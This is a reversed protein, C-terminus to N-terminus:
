KSDYNITSLSDMRVTDLSDARHLLPPHSWRMKKGLRDFDWRYLVGVGQTTLASRLYYNQDNFHNYAKLRLNGNRSLLYEIDFDGVFQTSSTNRDRYGFNGNILLRNNLLRSSLALDFEMDTFDGKDSRFSPAVSLKDTMQSLMNSLQSSITSSAMSSWEAGSSNNGTYEPTYFRNLALLYIIQRSMMDNTSVISKVKREVDSTLTPLSIDFNIDPQTMPGTVLLLADVPVNTRNLEKDSAFSKDLDTLNTNVRYTAAIDLNADMPDGNFSITSGQKIIFNKIIIDQLTFNYNGEDLVYKGFMRLNGDASNYDMQLGGSGRATIKDGGKPDMVITVLADPTVSGRLNLVVDSSGSDDGQKRSLFQRLYYPVTDLHESERMAKSRDTFTLFSYEDMEESDTIVYTFSSGKRTTMDMAIEVLGPKGTVQGGGDGFITGYWLPNIHENTDYCLIGKADHIRFDFVPDHFYRHKLWGSFKATNGYIDYLTVAPVNILGKSMRVSDGGAFYWTNTFDLKMAITDAYLDGVLDIDSFTGYLKCKGSGNGKLDSCFASVFPKMFALNIKDADFSFSLSDRTVWIGGDIRAKKQYSLPDRIVAFIEVEKQLPDYDAALDGNGLVAENYSLNKVRLFQTRAEPYPTLLKSGIIEGSAMGGFTVYNINLMGFIYDLDIDNLKVRVMDEDYESVKGDIKVYQGDHYLRLNDVDIIKGSYSIHGPAVNWSTGKMMIESPLLDVSVALPNSIRSNADISPLRSFKANLGVSGKLSSKLTPNFAIRTKLEDGGGLIDIALQVDGKKAPYILGSHISALGSGANIDCKINVDRILKDKGQRLHLADLSLSAKGALSNLSGEVNIDSLPRVPINFFDYPESIGPIEVTFNFVNANGFGAESSNKMREEHVDYIDAVQAHPVLSPFVSTMMEKLDKIIRSFSINGSANAKVWDSKLSLVRAFDDEDGDKDATLSLESLYLRHSDEKEMVLDKLVTQGTINDIDDGSIDASFEFSIKDKGLSGGIGFLGPMLDKVILDATLEKHSGLTCVGDGSLMLRDCYSDINFSVVDDSKSAYLDIDSLYFGNISASSVELSLSGSLNKNRGSVEASAKFSAKGINPRDTIIGLDVDSADLDVISKMSDPSKLNSIDADVVIKGLSTDINANGHAKGDIMSVEGEANLILYGSSALIRRPNFGKAPAYGSIKSLLDKSIVLDLNEVEFDLSDVHNLGSAQGKLTLRSGADSDALFLNRIILEDSATNFDAMINWDSTFRGLDDHFLRFDAPSVKGQLTIDVDSKPNIVYKIGGFDLHSSPLEVVLNDVLVIDSESKIGSQHESKKYTIRGGLHTLFFANNLTLNLNRIDFVFESNSIKPLSMDLRMGSVELRSLIDGKGASDLMWPRDFVAKSDRIVVNRFALNFKTPPKNKDKPSLADIIFKINLPGNKENQCIYAQLKSIFAYTLVIKRSTLLQWMDLGASMKGISACLNGDPDALSVDYLVVENFPSFSIRDITLNGGLLISCEKSIESKLINQVSPLSLLIYASVYLLAVSVILAM